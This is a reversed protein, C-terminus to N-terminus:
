MKEALGEQKLQRELFNLELIVDAKDTAQHAHTSFLKGNILILLGCLILLLVFCLYRMRYM